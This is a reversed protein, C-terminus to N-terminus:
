EILKFALINNITLVIEDIYLVVTKQKAIVNHNKYM